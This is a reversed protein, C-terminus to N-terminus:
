IFCTFHEWEFNRIVSTNRHIVTDLCMNFIKGNFDQIYVNVGYCTREVLRNFRAGHVNVSDYSVYLNTCFAPFATFTRWVREVLVYRVRNTCMM